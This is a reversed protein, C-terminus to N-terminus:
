LSVVFTKETRDLESGDIKLFIATQDLGSGHEDRNCVKEAGSYNSSINACGNKKIQSSGQRLTSLASKSHAAKYKQLQSNSHRQM